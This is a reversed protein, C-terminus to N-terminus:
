WLLLIWPNLFSELVAGSATMLVLVCVSPAALHKGKSPIWWLLIYFLPIYIMCQPFHLLWFKWIGFLGFEMTLRCITVAVTCGFYWAAAMLLYPAIASSVMLLIVVLQWLRAMIVNLFLSTFDAMALTTSTVAFEGIMQLEQKMNESMANCFISGSCAGMILFFSLGIKLSDGRNRIFNMRLGM